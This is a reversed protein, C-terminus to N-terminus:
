KDLLNRVRIGLRSNYVLFSSVLSFLKSGYVFDPDVKQEIGLYSSIDAVLCM